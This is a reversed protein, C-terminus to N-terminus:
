PSRSGAEFDYAFAHRILDAAHATFPLELGAAKASALAANLDKEGLAAFPSFAKAIAGPGGKAAAKKGNYFAEMQSTVVGNERGVEVLLQMTLGSANALTCAEHMAIFAAYTMLNNCLKLVIGAGIGGAHVIKKASTEFVPTCRKIIEDSGGVMYVLAAAEAGTAGGTIPADIIHVKRQAGDRAWRLISAQTVTSHVAVISGPQLNEVLGDAGYLLSEVDDDDRVCLGVISCQRAIGKPDDTNAGISVLEAVPESSVDYVYVPAGSKLLHKAMPKGIHGLGIFGISM